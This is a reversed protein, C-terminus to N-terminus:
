MFNVPIINNYEQLNWVVSNPFFPQYDPFKMKCIPHGVQLRTVSDLGPSPEFLRTTASLHSDPTFMQISYNACTTKKRWFYKFKRSEKFLLLVCKNDQHCINLCYVLYTEFLSTNKEPASHALVHWDHLCWTHDASFVQWPILFYSRQIPAFIKVPLCRVQATFVVFIFLM